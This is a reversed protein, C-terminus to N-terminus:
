LLLEGFVVGFLLHVVEYLNVSIIRSRMVAEKFFELSEVWLMQLVEYNFFISTLADASVTWQILCLFQIGSPLISFLKQMHRQFTADHSSSKKILNTIEQVVDLANQM